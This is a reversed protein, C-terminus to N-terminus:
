SHFGACNSGVYTGITQADTSLKPGLAQLKSLDPAGPNAFAGEASQLGQILDNVASKVNDPAGSGVVQLVKITNEFAQKATAPNSLANSANTLEQSVQVLQGCLTANGGGSGGTAASTSSSAASTGGTSASSGGSGNGKTSSSCAALSAVSVLAIIVNRAGM